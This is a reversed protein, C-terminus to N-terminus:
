KKLNQRKTERIVKKVEAEQEHLKQIKLQATEITKTIKDAEVSNTTLKKKDELIKLKNEEEKLTESLIEIKETQKKLVKKGNIIVIEDKGAKDIETTSKDIEKVEEKLKEVLSTHAQSTKEIKVKESQITKIETTIKTCESKYEEIKVPDNEILILKQLEEYKKRDAEITLDLKSIDLKDKECQKEILTISQLLSEKQAFKEEFSMSTTQATIKENGDIVETLPNKEYKSFDTITIPIEALEKKAEATETSPDKSVILDRQYATTIESTEGGVWLSDIKISNEPTTVRIGFAHIKGDQSLKGLTERICSAQKTPDPAVQAFLASAILLVLFLSKLNMM